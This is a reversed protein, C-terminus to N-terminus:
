NARYYVRDKRASMRNLFDTNSQFHQETFFHLRKALKNYRKKGNVVRYFNVIVPANPHTEAGIIKGNTDVEFKDTYKM